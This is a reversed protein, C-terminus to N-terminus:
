EVVIAAHIHVRELEAVIKGSKRGPVYRWNFPAKELCLRVSKPKAPAQMELKVPGVPPIEDITGDNPRNPIGSARNILHVIKREGRRRLVVDVCTPVQVRIAMRGALRGVTQGVFARVLPTRNREFFRFVNFPVYVVKGKGVSCITAAPYSLLRDNLLQTRGLRGIGKAAKPKVLRWTESFVAAAGDAAPVHYTRKHEVKGRTVGLFRTGFRKLAGAGSVLLRGGARVYDKLASVMEESLNDQEPAVVVPFESLRPLLAWEDMIDVGYHNELLSFCAGQVPSTDVSWMVNAGKMTSRAHHESHLVAVQPITETGQCVSRRANVFRGVERLRRIRWEVLRGDRVGNGNEYIQVNGGLALTVAAEQQLMEAPKMTWPATPDGMGAAKYFAWLMIDWPKGRTSIFRAECRSGDMGWVWTNDGSIWDTPVKPEGPHRFTQLWNSCVLVGKKHEHVADCYRTCYQEFSRRTFSIWAIWVPDEPETPARAIGTEETFARRCKRCYCPEVGWIDGDIWFGDVGYRDILELLQPILLKELYPGRPCM